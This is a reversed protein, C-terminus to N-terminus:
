RETWQSVQVTASQKGIFLSGQATMLLCAAFCCISIVTPSNEWQFVSELRNATHNNNFAGRLNEVWRETTKEKTEMGEKEIEKRAKAKLRETLAPGGKRARLTSMDSGEARRQGHRLSTLYWGKVWRCRIKKRGEGDWEYRWKMGWVESPLWTRGSFNTCTEGKWWYNELRVKWLDDTMQM